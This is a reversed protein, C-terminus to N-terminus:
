RPDVQVCVCVLVCMRALARACCLHFKSFTLTSRFRFRRAATGDHRARTTSVNGGDEDGVDVTTTTTTSHECTRMNAACARTAICQVTGYKMVVARRPAVYLFPARMPRLILVHKYVCSHEVTPKCACCVRSCGILICATAASRRPALFM